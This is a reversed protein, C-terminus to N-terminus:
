LFILKEVNLIWPVENKTKEEPTERKRSNASEFFTILFSPNRNAVEALIAQILVSLVSVTQWQQSAWCMSM